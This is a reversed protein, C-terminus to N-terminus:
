VMHYPAIPSLDKLNPGKQKCLFLPHGELDFKMVKQSVRKKMSMNM